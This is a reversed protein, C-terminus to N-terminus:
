ALRVEKLSLNNLLFLGEKSNPMFVELRNTITDEAFEVPKDFECSASVIVGNTPATGLTIIGTNLNVTFSNTEIGNLFIRVTDAVIKKLPYIYNGYAKILQFQTIVGTGIGINEQQIEHDLWDRFRFGSGLRKMRNYFDNIYILEGILNSRDGLQWQQLGNACCLWRQESGNGQQLSNIKFTLTSTTGSVIGINLREETFIM